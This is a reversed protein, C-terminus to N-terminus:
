IGTGGTTFMETVEAAQVLSELEEHKKVTPNVTVV